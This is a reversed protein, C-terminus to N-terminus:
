WSEKELKGLISLLILLSWVGVNLVTLVSTIVAFM